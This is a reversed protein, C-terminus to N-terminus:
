QVFLTLKDDAVRPLQRRDDTLSLLTTLIIKNKWSLVYANEYLFYMYFAM